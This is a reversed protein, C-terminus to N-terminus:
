KRAPRERDIDRKAVTFAGEVTKFMDDIYNDPTEYGFKGSAGKTIKVSVGKYQEVKVVENHGVCADFSETFKVVNM